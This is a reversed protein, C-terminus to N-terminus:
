FLTDLSDSGTMKHYEDIIKEALREDEVVEVSEEDTPDLWFVVVEDDAATLPRLISYVQQEYVITAIQELEISKGNEDFLFVNDSNHEDTLQEYLSIGEEM